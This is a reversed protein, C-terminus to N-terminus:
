LCYDELPMRRCIRPDAFGADALIIYGDMLGKEDFIGSCVTEKSSGCLM